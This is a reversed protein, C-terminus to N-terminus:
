KDNEFCATYEEVVKEQAVEGLEAFKRFYDLTRDSLFKYFMLGLMYDKYKSADMSGRLENAGEWLIRKIEESTKM